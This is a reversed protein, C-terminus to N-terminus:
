DMEADVRSYTVRAQCCGCGIRSSEVIIGNAVRVADGFPWDQLESTM